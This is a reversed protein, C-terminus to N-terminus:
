AKSQVQQQQRDSCPVLHSRSYKLAKLSATVSGHVELTILPPATQPTIVPKTAHYMPTEMIIAASLRGNNRRGRPTKASSQAKIWHPQLALRIATIIQYIKKSVLMIGRSRVPKDEQSLCTNLSIPSHSNAMAWCRMTRTPSSPLMNLVALQTQEFVPSRLCSRIYVSHYKTGM